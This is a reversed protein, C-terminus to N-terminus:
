PGVPTLLVGSGTPALLQAESQINVIRGNVLRGVQNAMWQLEGISGIYMSNQWEQLCQAHAPTTVYRSRLPRWGNLPCIGSAAFSNKANWPTVAKHFAELFSAVLTYRTTAAHTWGNFVGLAMHGEIIQIKQKLEFKLPAAIAVDFPQMVHSCHGPLTLVDIGKQWLYYIADLNRRSTHGDMLLLVRRQRRAQDLGQKWRSVWHAFNVAWKQFVDSTIWGTPSSYFDANDTFEELEAPMNKLMPLIIGPKPHDGHCNYCVIGTLHQHKAGGPVIGAVGHPVVVKYKRNSSVGTEDMNFILSEHYAKILGGFQRFWTAVRIRDCTKKRIEELEESNKIRLNNRQAFANVWTDDPPEPDEISTAIKVSGISILASRAAAVRQLKMEHAINQFVWRPISNLSRASETLSQVLTVEDYPSLYSPRGGESTPNWRYGLATARLARVIQTDNSLRTRTQAFFQDHIESYTLNRSRLQWIIVQEQELMAIPFPLNM